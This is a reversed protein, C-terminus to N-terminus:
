GSLLVRISQWMSDRASVTRADCLDTYSTPMM